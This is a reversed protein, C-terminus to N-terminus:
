WVSKNQTTKTSLLDIYAGKVLDAEEVGLKSMLDRAIQEGEFTSQNEKMVVELEMFCGLGEVEDCHVRTQGVLYLLRKKKVVGKEGMARSLVDALKDPENTPATYFESMKPGSKDDRQYFILQSPQNHLLRLKLRGQPVNYFIDKQEIIEGESDSIENAKRKFTEFDKVKAKIEVNSPM